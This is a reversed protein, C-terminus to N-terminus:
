PIDAMKIKGFRARVSPENWQCYTAADVKADIRNAFADMRDHYENFAKEDHATCALDMMWSYDRHKPFRQQYDDISKKMVTWHRGNDTKLADRLSPRDVDSYMLAYMSLGIRPRTMAVSAEIWKKQMDWTGGWKPQLFMSGLLHLRPVQPFKEIGEALRAYVLSQEIGMSMELSMMEAYWAYDTKALAEHALLTDRAQQWLHLAIQMDKEGVEGIFGNGRVLWGCLNLLAANALYPAPSKPHVARWIEFTSQWSQLVSQHDAKTVDSWLKRYINASYSEADRAALEPDRLERALQDFASFNKQNKFLWIATRLQSEYEAQTTAKAPVVWLVTVLLAMLTSRLASNSFCRL